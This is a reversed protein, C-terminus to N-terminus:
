GRWAIAKERAVGIMLVGSRGEHEAAPFYERANPEKSEGKGFQLV